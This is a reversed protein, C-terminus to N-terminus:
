PLLLTLAPVSRLSSAKRAMQRSSQLSQVPDQMSFLNSLPYQGAFNEEDGLVRRAETELTTTRRAQNESSVKLKMMM